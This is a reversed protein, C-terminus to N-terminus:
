TRSSAPSSVLTEISSLVDGHAANEFDRGLLQCGFLCGYKVLQHRATTTDEARVLDPDMTRRDRAAHLVDPSIEVLATRKRRAFDLNSDEQDRPVPIGVVDPLRMDAFALSNTQRLFDDIREERAIIGLEGVRVLM